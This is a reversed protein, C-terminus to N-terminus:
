NLHLRHILLNCYCKKFRLYSGKTISICKLSDNYGFARDGISNVSSPMNISKLHSCGWFAYSGIYSLSEPLKVVELRNCHAFANAEVVSLGQPLEVTELLRNHEFAGQRIIRVTEPVQYHRLEFSQPFRILETMDKSFLVGEVSKYSKNDCIYRLNNSFEFAKAELKTLSQPFVIEELYYCNTFADSKLEVVGEPICYREIKKAEPYKILIKLDGSFLIGDISKYNPSDCHIDEVKCKHFAYDDIFIISSPINIQQLNCNQFAGFGISQLNDPLRITKIHSNAFANRGILRVSDPIQVELFSTNEFAKDAICLCTDSITYKKQSQLKSNEKNSLCHYRRFLDTALVQRYLRGHASLLKMRDVTYFVGDLNVYRQKDDIAANTNLKVINILKVIPSYDIKTTPLVYISSLKDCGYFAYKDIEVHQGLIAISKLNKCNAFAGSEITYVGHPINVYQLSRCGCFTNSKIIQLKKPLTIKNLNICDFFASGGITTISNPLNIETLKSCGNFACEGVYSVVHSINVSELNENYAFACQGISTIDEPVTYIAGKRQAPYLILENFEKEKFETKGFLVGEVTKYFQNNCYIYKLRRPPLSYRELQISITREPLQISEIKTYAFAGLDISLPIWSNSKDNFIVRKLNRCNSFTEARIYAVTDPIFIQMLNEGGISNEIAVCNESVVLNSIRDSVNKLEVAKGFSFFITETKQYLIDDDTIPSGDISTSCLRKATDQGQNWKICYFENIYKWVVDKDNIIMINERNSQAKKTWNYSGSIVLKEDIICFKNHMVGGDMSIKHIEGGFSILLDHAKNYQNNIDDNQLILDVFIGQKAKNLLVDFLSMDTLWAMAIYISSCSSKLYDIIRNQINDFYVDM